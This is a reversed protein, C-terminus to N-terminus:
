GAAGLALHGDWLADALPDAGAPAELLRFTTATLKGRGLRKEILFAGPKHVWGVVVGAHVRGQFEWPRLGTMVQTPVVGTFSLDFMPGGPIHAFAGDRNLWSFNGVWDGRYISKHRNMLQYGPFSFYSGSEAGGLQGQVPITVPGDRPPADDRLRGPEQDVLMLLRQGAHIAEVKAADLGGTVLLEAEHPSVVDHGLAALHAAIRDDSAALRLKAPRRRAYISLPVDNRTIEAGGPASLRFTLTDIRSEGGEPVAIALPQGNATMPGLAPLVQQGSRGAFSWQLVSGEPVEAGGTAIVLDAAVTGGTTVSYSAVRPAIVVDANVQPMASAFVRPNRAMDMLGNGEWHVDTLETIVYGTIPAHARIGEIEHKLNAWQHWQVQAIFGAFSGFVSALGLEAFRAEIGQPLATGDAWSSGYAMWWPDVGPADRLLAPDPLGWMGFESLILPERGTRHIDDGQGYTWDAAAAFEANLADWEDRRETVARYYHYDNLDSKVHWNPFCASNDVVLRLPDEAKLWDYLDALWARQDAVERLRTGWDENILTWIVISPHNRDRALIGQMTTKLRAASADTFTEINPIETWILMGLRDAAEYYRPDPVKIHCRLCNLGMAKAKRIQDELLAVSPPLGFGDPYYDQDLAGRLFLPRGNLHIAGDKTEIRRFGIKDSRVDLDGAAGVLTARLSYLVPDDPSWPRLGAIVASHRAEGGRVPVTAAHVTEGQPSLLEIRLNAGTGGSIRADLDLRGEPWIPDLRLSNIHAAPRLELRVSQWIGGQPGYWSQKGHPIEAFDTHDAGRRADPLVAVVELQNEDALLAEPLEVEFPLYGGEHRAIETGNLSVIALDSVAGFCLFVPRGVWGAPRGFRRRYTARGFSVALDAFCAQWPAPVRAKRWIGDSGHSFDWVGDLSVTARMSPPAPTLIPDPATMDPDMKNASFPIRFAGGPPMAPMLRRMGPLAREPPPAPGTM